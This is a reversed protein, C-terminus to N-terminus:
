RSEVREGFLSNGHAIVIDFVVGLGLAAAAAYVPRLALHGDQSLDALAELFLFRELADAHRGAQVDGGLGAVQRARELFAARVQNQGGRVRERRLVIHRGRQDVDVLNGGVGDLALIVDGIVFM